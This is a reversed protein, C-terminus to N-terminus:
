SFTEFSSTFKDYSCGMGGFDYIVIKETRFSFEFDILESLFKTSTKCHLITSPRFDDKFTYWAIYDCIGAHVRFNTLGCYKLFTNSNVADRHHMYVNLLSWYLYKTFYWYIWPKWLFSLQNSVHFWFEMFTLM